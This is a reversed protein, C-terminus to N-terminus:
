QTAERHSNIATRRAMTASDAFGSLVRDGVEVMWIWAGGISGTSGVVVRQRTQPDRRSVARVGEIILHM